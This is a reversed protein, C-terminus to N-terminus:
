DGGGGCGGCGGGGSDGGGSDGGGGCSTTSSDGTTSMPSRLTHYSEWPTGLLAATGYLAVVHSPDAGGRAADPKVTERRVAIQQDGALTRRAPALLFGLVVMSLLVMLALLYGIPYGGQLGIVIKCAGLLWLAAVPLASLGRVWLAHRPDLWLGKAVVRQQVPEALARLAQWAVVPDEANGAIQLAPALAAPVTAVANRRLRVRGQAEEDRELFVANTALLQAFYLDAVRADGGSLYAVEAADSLHQNSAGGVGRAWRRLLAAASWALGILVVFLALFHTGRWHLPSLVGTNANSGFAAVVLTAAAWGMVTGIGRTWRDHGAGGRVARLTAEADLAPSPTSVSASPPQRAAPWLAAPPEGFHQRYRELTQRYQAQFRMDEDAGARGPQHHLTTQLVQPCFQQWYARTDTLHTHWVQDILPSPTVDQTGTCALFCFRRYEEVMRQAQTVSCHAQKAVRGVFAALAADDDGFRYAQLRQWLAQQAPTAAIPDLRASEPQNTM